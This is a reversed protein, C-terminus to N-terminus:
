REDEELLDLIPQPNLVGDEWNDRLETAAMQWKKLRARLDRIARLLMDHDRKVNSLNARATDMMARMRNLEDYSDGPRQLPM